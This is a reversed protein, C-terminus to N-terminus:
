KIQKEKALIETIKDFIEGECEIAMNIETFNGIIKEDIL